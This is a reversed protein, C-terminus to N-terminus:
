VIEICYTAKAHLLLDIASRYQVLCHDAKAVIAEQREAAEPSADMSLKNGVLYNATLSFVAQKYLTGGTETDSFRDLSLDDLHDFSAMTTALEQHVTIRAITANHLISSETENSLFHFLHQFAEISLAPYLATAPLVASYTENKNGVFDM